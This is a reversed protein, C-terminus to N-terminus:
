LTLALALYFALECVQQTAGLCDGTFGQLRRWFLRWMWLLALVAAFSPAILNIDDYIYQVFALAMFTWGFAVWLSRLSIQDALPKSKSSADDGVHPMARILVLALARSVVHGVFLGLCMIDENVSGILALLAVKTLIALVLALAGFAGVRSDKMILLARERDMSGGLGDVVDALGDEHFAGTLWVSAATGLVAAVLPAYPSPPLLVLLVWTVSAALAGVLWGVGPFHAASARLMAPSYGVWTALGGTVPIRTFFQLALLYHRAFSCVQDRVFNM